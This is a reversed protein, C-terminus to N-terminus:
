NRRICVIEGQWPWDDACDVLKARVPNDRVYNWKESYSESSRILHDFFGPQWKIPHGAAKKVSVSIFQKLLRVFTKLQDNESISAFFHIHEPMIVFKGIVRGMDINKTAYESFSNLVVQNNLIKERYATNCTIFYLPAEAQQFVRTLRPPRGKFKRQM